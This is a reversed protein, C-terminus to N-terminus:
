ENHANLYSMINEFISEVKEALEPVYKESITRADRIYGVNLFVKITDTAVSKVDEDTLHKSIDDCEEYDRAWLHQKFGLKRSENIKDEDKLMEACFLARSTERTLEKSYNEDAKKVSEQYVTELIEKRKEESINWDHENIYEIRQEDWSHYGSIGSVVRHFLVEEVKEIDAGHEKALELPYSWSYNIAHYCLMNTLNEINIDAAYKSIDRVVAGRTERHLASLFADNATEKAKVEQETTRYYMFLFTPNLSGVLENEADNVEQELKETM